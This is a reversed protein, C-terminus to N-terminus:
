RSWIMTKFVLVSVKIFL